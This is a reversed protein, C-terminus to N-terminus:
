QLDYSFVCRYETGWGKVFSVRISCMSTLQYVAEFGQNVSHRLLQAFTENNFIKLHCGAFFCFLFIHSIHQNFDM